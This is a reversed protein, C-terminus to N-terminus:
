PVGPHGPKVQGGPRPLLTGQSNFVLGSTV